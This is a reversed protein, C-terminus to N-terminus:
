YLTYSTGPPVADPQEARLVLLLLVVPILVAAWRSDATRTYRRLGGYWSDVAAARPGALPVAGDARPTWGGRGDAGSAPSADRRAAGLAAFVTFYSVALVYRRLGSSCHRVGANWARVATTFWRSSGIRPLLAAAAAMAGWRWPSPAAVAAAKVTAVTFLVLLGAGWFAAVYARRLPVTLAPSGSTWRM